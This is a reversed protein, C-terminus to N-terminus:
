IAKVLQFPAYQNIHNPNKDFQTTAKIINGPVLIRDWDAFNHQKQPNKSLNLKYTKSEDDIDKCVVMKFPYSNFRSPQLGSVKEVIITVNM